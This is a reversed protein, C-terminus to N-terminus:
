IEEEKVLWEYSNCGWCIQFRSDRSTIKSEQPFKLSSMPSNSPRIAKWFISVILWRWEVIRHISCSIRFCFAFAAISNLSTRVMFFDHRSRICKLFFWLPRACCAEGSGKGTRGGNWDGDGSGTGMGPVRSFGISTSVPVLSDGMSIGSLGSGTAVCSFLSLSSSNGKQPHVLGETTLSQSPCTSQFAVLRHPFQPDILWPM